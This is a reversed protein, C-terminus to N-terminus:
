FSAVVKGHSLLFLVELDNWSEAFDIWLILSTFISTQFIKTQFIPMPFYVTSLLRSQVSTALPYPKLPNVEKQGDIWVRSVQQLVSWTFKDITGMVTLVVSCPAMDYDPLLCQSPLAPLQMQTTLAM